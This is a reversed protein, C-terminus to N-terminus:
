PGRVDRMPANASSPAASVVSPKPMPGSTQPQSTGAAKATVGAAPSAAANPARPNATAKCRLRQNVTAEPGRRAKMM